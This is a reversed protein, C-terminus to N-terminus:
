LTSAAPQLTLRIADRGHVRYRFIHDLHQFHMTHGRVFSTITELLSLVLTDRRQLFPMYHAPLSGSRIRREDLFITLNTRATSSPQFYRLSFAASAACSRASLSSFDPAWVSSACLLAIIPSTAMSSRQPTSRHCQFSASKLARDIRQQSAAESGTIEASWFPSPGM